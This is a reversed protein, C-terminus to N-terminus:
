PWKLHCVIAHCGLAPRDLAPDRSPRSGPPSSSVSLVALAGLSHAAVARKWRRKRKMRIATQLLQVLAPVVGARVLRQRLEVSEVAHWVAAASAWSVDLVASSIGYVLASLTEDAFRSAYFRQLFAM